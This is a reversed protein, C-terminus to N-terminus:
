EGLWEGVCEQSQVPGFETIRTWRMKGERVFPEGKLLTNLHSLSRARAIALPAHERILHASFLFHGAGFAHALFRAHENMLPELEVRSSLHEGEIIFYRM